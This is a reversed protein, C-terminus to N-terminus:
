RPLSTYVLWIALLEWETSKFADVSLCGLILRCWLQSINQLGCPCGHLKPNFGSAMVEVRGARTKSNGELKILM